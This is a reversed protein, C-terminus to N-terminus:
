GESKLFIDPNDRIVQHLGLAIENVITEEDSNEIDLSREKIIGHVIEHLFTQEQRSLNQRSKNISIETNEFDIFGYCLRDNMVLEENKLIVKYDVSGIRVRDPINM